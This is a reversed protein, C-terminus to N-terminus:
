VKKGIEMAVMNTKEAKGTYTSCVKLKDETAKANLDFSQQDPSNKVNYRFLDCFCKMTQVLLGQFVKVQSHDAGHFM